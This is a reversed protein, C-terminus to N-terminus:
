EREARWVRFVSRAAGRPSYSYDGNVSGRLLGREAQYALVAANEAAATQLPDGDWPPLPASPIQDVAQCHATLLEPVSAGPRNTVKLWPPRDFISPNEHNLTGVITGDAFRTALEVYTTVTCQGEIDIVWARLQDAARWLVRAYNTVPAEPDTPEVDLAHEFGCRELEAALPDIRAAREPPFDGTTSAQIPLRASVAGKKYTKWAARLPRMLRTIPRSGRCGSEGSFRSSMLAPHVTLSM